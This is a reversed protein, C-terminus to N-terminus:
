VSPASCVWKNIGSSQVSEKFILNWSLSSHVENKTIAKATKPDRCALRLAHFIAKDIEMPLSEAEENALFEAM